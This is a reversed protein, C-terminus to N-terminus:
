HELETKGCLGGKGPSSTYEWARPNCSSSVHLGVSYRVKWELRQRPSQGGGDTKKEDTTTKKEGAFESIGSQQRTEM